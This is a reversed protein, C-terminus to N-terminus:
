ETRGPLIEQAKTMLGEKLVGWADPDGKLLAM